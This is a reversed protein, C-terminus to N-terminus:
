GRAYAIIAEPPEELTEDVDDGYGHPLVMGSEDMLLFLGEGEERSQFRGAADRVGFVARYPTGSLRHSLMETYRAVESRSYASMATRRDKSGMDEGQRM